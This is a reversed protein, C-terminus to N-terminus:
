IQDYPMVVAALSLASAVTGASMLEMLFAMVIVVVNLFVAVVVTVVDLLEGVSSGKRNVISSM